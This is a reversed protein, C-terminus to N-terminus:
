SNDFYVSSETTILQVQPVFRPRVPIRFEWVQRELYVLSSFPDHTVTVDVLLINDLEAMRPIIGLPVGEPETPEAGSELPVPPVYGTPWDGRAPVVSWRVKFDEPERDYGSGSDFCGGVRVCQISSIRLSIDPGARPVLARHLVILDAIDPSTASEDQLVTQRSILDALTYSAKTALDLSRYSDYLVASIVIWAMLLPVWIVFEMTASGRDDRLFDRASHRIGVGSRM